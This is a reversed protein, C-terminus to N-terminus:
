ARINIECKQGEEAPAQNDLLFMISVCADLM